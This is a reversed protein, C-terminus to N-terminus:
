STHNNPATTQRTAMQKSFEWMVLLVLRMLYVATAMLLLGIIGYVAGTDSHGPGLAEIEIAVLHGGWLCTSILVLLIGSLLFYAKAINDTSRMVCRISDLILANWGFLFWIYGAMIGLLAIAM